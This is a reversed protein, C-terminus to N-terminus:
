GKQKQEKIFSPPENNNIARLVELVDAEGRIYADLIERLAETLIDKLTTTLWDIDNRDRDGAIELIFETDNEIAFRLWESEQSNPLVFQLYCHRHREPKDLVGAVTTLIAPSLMYTYGDVGRVLVVVAYHSEGVRDPHIGHLHSWLYAGTPGGKALIAEFNGTAFNKNDEKVRYDEPPPPLKVSNADDYDCRWAQFNIIDSNM